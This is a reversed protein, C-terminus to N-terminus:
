DQGIRFRPVAYRSPIAGNIGVGSGQDLQCGLSPASRIGLDSGEEGTNVLAWDEEYFTIM